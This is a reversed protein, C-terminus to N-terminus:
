RLKGLVRTLFGAITDLLITTSPHAPGRERLVREFAASTPGPRPPALGEQVRMTTQEAAKARDLGGSLIFGAIRELEDADLWTGHDHCRDVIVGSTRRYNRRSMMAGCVPCKRYEVREGAPNGGTRRPEPVIAGEEQSKWADIARTVLEDFRDGPVWIGNCAACEQVAIGGIARPAMAAGCRVCPPAAADPAPEPVPQPRFTVGCATCFRSEPHNRAFCEPCILSLEGERTVRARCYGCTLAGDELLAGCSACRRVPADVARPAAAPVTAGCPCAFSAEPLGSVDYQVRCGPCAVLRV